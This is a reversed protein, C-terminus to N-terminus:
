HSFQTKLKLFKKELLHYSLISVLYALGFSLVFTLALNTIRLYNIIIDFCIPHYVYLGFSIKGISKLTNNDLSKKLWNEPEIIIAIAVFSGYVMALVFYRACSELLSYNGNNLSIYILPILFIIFVTIFKKLNQKVLKNQLELIALFSGIALEDFRAFTFLSEEIHNKILIFRVIFSIACLLLIVWKINKLSCYYIILPWFLYFHEEVSLSWYHIPGASNWDFTLAFNQMFTWYWMQQSFGAFSQNLFFPVVFYYIVLFFYYLPFIRLVRKIYFSKFYSDDQKTNLLIRTILFGSLVFFLSVGTKGFLSIKKLLILIDQQVDVDKFFHYFMVMIVAIARVGDLENYHKLKTNM